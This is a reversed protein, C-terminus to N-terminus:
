DLYRTITGEIDSFGAAQFGFKRRFVFFRQSPQLASWCRDAAYRIVDGTAKLSDLAAEYVPILSHMGDRSVLYATTNTCTQFSLSILDDRQVTRGYKSTALLCVLYSYRREFFTRLDQLHMERDSTFCFDDELVMVHEFGTEWAHRLVDLHSHLCGIAGLIPLPWAPEAPIFAPMRSVRNFPAKAMALERLISDYRDIRRDANIIYIQSIPDWRGDYEITDHELQWFMSVHRKMPNNVVVNEFMHPYNGYIVIIEGESPRRDPDFTGVVKRGDVIWPRFFPDTAQLTTEDIPLSSLSRLLEIASSPESNLRSAANSILQDRVLEPDPSPAARTDIM